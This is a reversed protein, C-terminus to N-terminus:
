TLDQKRRNARLSLLVQEGSAGYDDAAAGDPCCRRIQQHACTHSANPNDVTIEDLGRVQLPLEKEILLIGAVDQWFGYSSFTLEAVNIGRNLSRTDDRIKSRAVRFFEESSEVDYKVTRVVELRAQENVVKCDFV